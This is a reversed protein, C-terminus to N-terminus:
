IQCEHRLGSSLKTKELWPTGSPSAFGEDLVVSRVEEAHNFTHVVKGRTSHEVSGIRCEERVGRVFASCTFSDVLHSKRLPSQVLKPGLQVIVTLRMCGVWHEMEEHYPHSSITTTSTNKSISELVEEIVPVPFNVPSFM